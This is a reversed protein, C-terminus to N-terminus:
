EDTASDNDEVKYAQALHVQSRQIIGQRAAEAAPDTVVDDDLNVTGMLQRAVYIRYKM